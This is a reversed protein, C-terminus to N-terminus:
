RKFADYFRIQFKLYEGSKIYPEAGINGYTLNPPAIITIASNTGSIQFAEKWSKLLGSYPLEKPEGKNTSQYKTGDLHFARFSLKIFTDDSIAYAKGQEHIKYVLGSKSVKYKKDKKILDDIFSKGIEKQALSKRERKDKVLEDVLLAYQNIEENSLDIKNKFRDKIGKILYKQSQEDLDLEYLSHAFKVGLSYSMNDLPKKVKTTEIKKEKTCSFIFLLIFLYKSRM